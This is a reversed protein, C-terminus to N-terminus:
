KTTLAEFAHDPVLQLEFERDPNTAKRERIDGFALDREEDFFAAEFHWHTEAESKSVLVRM